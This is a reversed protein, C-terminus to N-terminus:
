YFIINRLKLCNKKFINAHLWSYIGYVHLFYPKFVKIKPSCLFFALIQTVINEFRCKKDFKIIKAYGVICLIEYYSIEHNYTVDNVIYVNIKM